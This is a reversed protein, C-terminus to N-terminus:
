TINTEKNLGSTLLILTAFGLKSMRISKQQFMYRDFTTSAAAAAAAAANLSKLYEDISRCINKLQTHLDLFIRIDQGLTLTM